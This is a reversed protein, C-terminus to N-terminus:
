GICPRVLALLSEKRFNLHTLVLLLIDLLVTAVRQTNLIWFSSSSQNRLLDKLIGSNVTWRLYILFPKTFFSKLKCVKAIVVRESLSKSVEKAIDM